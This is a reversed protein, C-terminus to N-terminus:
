RSNLFNTNHGNTIVKCSSKTNRVSILWTGLMLQISAEQNAMLKASDNLANLRKACPDFVKEKEKEKKESISDQEIAWAPTCHCSRLDSCGRGGLNM